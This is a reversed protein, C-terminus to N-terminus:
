VIKYGITNQGNQSLIPTTTSFFISKLFLQIYFKEILSPNCILDDSTHTYKSFLLLNSNSIKKKNKVNM